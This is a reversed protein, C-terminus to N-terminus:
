DSKKTYKFTLTGSYASYDDSAEIYVGYNAYETLYGTLNIVSDNATNVPFFFWHEGNSVRGSWEITDVDNKKVTSDVYIRNAFGAAAPMAGSAITKVYVPKGQYRETTRYEKNLEMPPNVWEWPQWTNGSVVWRIATFTTGAKAGYPYFRQVGLPGHATGSLVELLGEGTYGDPKNANTSAVLYLGSNTANNLDGETGANYLSTNTVNKGLGCGAPAKNQLAIDIAGGPLARAIADDIEQATHDLQDVQAPQGTLPNTITVIQAM